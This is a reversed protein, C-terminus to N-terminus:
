LGRHGHSWPPEEEGGSDRYLLSSVFSARWSGTMAERQKGHPQELGFSDTGGWTGGHRTGDATGEYPMQTLSASYPLPLRLPHPRPRAHFPSASLSSATM